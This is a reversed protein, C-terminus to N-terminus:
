FMLPDDNDKNNNLYGIFSTGVILFNVFHVYNLLNTTDKPFARNM